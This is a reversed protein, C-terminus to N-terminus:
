DGQHVEPEMTDIFPLVIIKDFILDISKKFIPKFTDICYGFLQIAIPDIIGSVIIIHSVMQM